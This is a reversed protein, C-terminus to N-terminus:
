QMKAIRLKASRARRNEVIEEYSPVLPKKTMIKYIGDAAKQKFDFKVIRDELSHYSIIAICGDKKLVEPAAALLIELNELEDNVAIRM